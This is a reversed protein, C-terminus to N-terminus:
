LPFYLLTLLKKHRDVFLFGISQPLLGMNLVEFLLWNKLNENKQFNWIQTSVLNIFKM